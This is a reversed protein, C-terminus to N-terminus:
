EKQKQEVIIWNKETDNYEWTSFVRGSYVTPSNSPYWQMHSEIIFCGDKKDPDSHKCPNSSVIEIEAFRLSQSTIGELWAARGNPAIRQAAIEYREFILNKHYDEVDKILAQFGSKSTQCGTFLM